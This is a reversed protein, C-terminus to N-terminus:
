LKDIVFGSPGSHFNYGLANTLRFTAIFSSKNGNEIDNILTESVKSRKSLDKLSLNQNIREDRLWSHFNANNVEISM